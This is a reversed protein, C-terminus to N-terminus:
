LTYSHKNYCFPFSDDGAGELFHSQDPVEQRSFSHETRRGAAYLSTDQNLPTLQIKNVFLITLFNKGSLISLTEIPADLKMQIGKGAM